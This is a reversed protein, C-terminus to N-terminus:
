PARVGRVGYNSQRTTTTDSASSRDSIRAYNGGLGWLGGRLGKQTSTDAPWGAPRDTTGNGGAPVSLYSCNLAYEYVNGALDPIGYPSAGTQEPTRFVDGSMYRGSDLVKGTIGPVTYNMFNRSHVGGENRVSYTSTTPATNGWPYTWNDPSVDRAAKEFEMETMPRLAAWSLFSWADVTSLFNKAAFRDAAGYRMGYINGANYSMNHGYMVQSSYLAAATSSHVTNLFDAYLGQTLEYRMIYFSNYGNPWGVAAGGPRQTADSVTAQSGGGFNNNGSGGIGGANYVFEGQPVKVMSIAFVKVRANASTVGDASYNWTVTAGATWYASIATHNLFLGKNDSAAALTAGAEVSGGTLTAHNWTGDAGAATSFKVFIWDATNYDANNPTTGTSVNNEAITFGINVGAVTPSSLTVNMVSLNNVPAMAAPKGTIFSSIATWPGYDGTEATRARAQWYYLTNPALQTVTSYFVFTATSNYLYADGAYSIAGDQGSFAGKNSYAQMVTQDFSHLPTTIPDNTGVQYQYQVPSVAKPARAYLAAAPSIGTVGNGPGVLETDLLDWYVYSGVLDNEYGAGYRPGNAGPMNVFSGSNLVSANVNVAINTSIFAANNFDMVFMGGLFNIATAGPTLFQFTISSVVLSAAPQADISLGYKGGNITNSALEIKGGNGAALYVAAGQAGGSVTGTAMFLGLSSSMALGSGSPSTALLTTGRFITLTTSTLYAATSGQVYSNLITNTSAGAFYVGYKGAAASTVTSQDIVNFKANAAFNVGNGLPNSIDCGTITNTTTDNLRVAYYPESNGEIRSQGIKNFGGYEVILGIGVPNSIYTGTVENWDSGLYFAPYAGGRSAVTSQSVKNGMGGAIALAVVSPNSVYLGTLTNSSSDVLQIGRNGVATVTSLSFDNHNSGAYFNVGDGITNSFYNGTMTNSSSGMFSVAPNTGNNNSIRDFSIRSNFGTVQLGNASNVAVSSFSVESFSSILIGAASILGGATMNVSSIVVSASSAYIGYPLSFSPSIKIGQVSVSDNLIQFAAKAGSLPSVAPASSVLTPDAMITLRYGNNGFGKVTVQESYTEADRIVVCTATSLSAPVSDLAEQIGNFFIGTKRVDLSDGCGAPRPLAAWGSSMTLGTDHFALLTATSSSGDYDNWVVDLGGGNNRWGSWRLRPSTQSKTGNSLNEWPGWSSGDYVSKKINVVSNASTSGSWVMYINGAGDAALRPDRQPAESILYVYSSPSWTGGYPKVAYKVQPNSQIADASSWAAMVNGASDIALSASDQHRAGADSFVETWSGWGGRAARSSYVIVPTTYTGASVARKALLHVGDKADIALEPNDAERGDYNVPVYPTWNSSDASRSSYRISLCGSGGCDQGAWAIHLGNRSDAAINFETEVGAYSHAPIKVYPSWSTGPVAASSYVCKPEVGGPDLVSNSGGFLLHLVDKSDIALAPSIQDYTNAPAVDGATEVPALTTDAWTAGNDASRALFIRKKGNYPKEYALYLNGASDRVMARQQANRIDYIGMTSVIVAAQPAVFIFSIDPSAEGPYSRMNGAKDVALAQVEYTASNEWSLAATNWSWTGPQGKPDSITGTSFWLRDGPYVGAPCSLWSNADNDYCLQPASTKKLAINVVGSVRLEGPLPDMATGSISNIAAVTGTPSVARSNPPIVDDWDVYGNPDNEFADGNKVGASNHITVRSGANLLRGNVNIFINPSNFAVGTFTSVFQGGLFNIATAGSTLDQFTMSAISLTAGLAQTDINLGYKGGSITNSSLDIAGYNGGGLLIGAGQSGGRFTSSAVDLNTNGGDFALAAGGSNTAVFVSSRIGTDISGVVYAATSGQVYSNAVTSYSCNNIYLPYYGAADSTMTSYSINTHDSNSTLMLGSGAPNSIYSRTINNWSSFNYIYVAFNASNSTITSDAVTNYDAGSDLRAGQGGPNSIYSGTVTNSDSNLIYLAYKGSSSSTISSLSVESGSGGIQLGHAGQMSITSNFVSSRSSISVGAGYINSGSLINVGSINVSASSALIGYAVTNTSIIDIGKISVSDNFVQFAANSGAPPNVAPASSIFTPDSVIKLRNGNTAIKSVTVQESYTQTDRIVICHDSSIGSPLANVAAQISKYDVTGDKKVDFGTVCGAPVVADVTQGNSSAVPSMVGATNEARANIYYTTGRPLALGTKIMAMAPGNDTWPAVDTGDATTGISYWYRAIALEPDTSSSWNASLQANSLTFSIDAGMGDNVQAPATPPMYYSVTIGISNFNLMMAAAADNDKVIVGFATSNIDGPTWVAGWLDSNSGSQVTSETTLFQVGTKATGVPTAGDKTLALQYQRDTASAGPGSGTVLVTVGFVVANAPIAFGFGKLNLPNQLNNSYSAYNGDTSNLSTPPDV